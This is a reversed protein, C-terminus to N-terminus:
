EPPLKSIRNPSSPLGHGGYRVVAAAPSSDHLAGLLIATAVFLWANAEGQQLLYQFDM